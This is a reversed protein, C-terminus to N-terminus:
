SQGEATAPPPSGAPQLEDAPPPLKDPPASQATPVDNGDGDKAALHTITAPEGGPAADAPTPKPTAAPERHIRVFEVAFKDGRAIADFLAPNAISMKLNASPTWKSFTSDPDLGTDPYTGDPGVAMMEIEQCAGESKPTPGVGIVLLRANMVPVGDVTRSTVEESAKPELKGPVPYGQVERGLVFLIERLSKAVEASLDTDQGGPEGAPKIIRYGSEPHEFLHILNSIENVGLDLARNERPVPGSFETLNSMIQAAFARAARNWARAFPATAEHQALEGWAPMPAVGPSGVLCERFANYGIEGCHDGVPAPTHGEEFAKAPSYSRYGDQYLVFYGGVEPKHRDLWAQGVAINTQDGDLDLILSPIGEKESLAAVKGAWVNKHSQWKPLGMTNLCGGGGPSGGGDPMLMFSPSVACLAALTLLHRQM